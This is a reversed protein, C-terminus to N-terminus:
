FKTFFSHWYVSKKKGNFVVEDSYSIQQRIITKINSLNKFPEKEYCFPRM